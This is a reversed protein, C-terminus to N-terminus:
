KRHIEKVCQVTNSSVSITSLAIVFLVIAGTMLIWIPDFWSFLLVCPFFVLLILSFIVIVLKNVVMSLDKQKMKLYVIPLEDLRGISDEIKIKRRHMVHLKFFVAALVILTLVVARFAFSPSMAIDKRIIRYSVTGAFGVAVATSTKLSNSVPKTNISVNSLQEEDLLFAKRKTFLEGFPDVWNIPRAELDILYGSGDANRLVKYRMNGLVPEVRTEFMTSGELNKFYAATIDRM